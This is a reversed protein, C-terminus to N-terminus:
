KNIKNKVIDKPKKAETNDLIVDRRKQFDHPLIGQLIEEKTLVDKTLVAKTQIDKIFDSNILVDKKLYITITNNDLLNEFSM